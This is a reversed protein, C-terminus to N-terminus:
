IIDNEELQTKKLINPPPFAMQNASKASIKIKLYLKTKIWAKTKRIIHEKQKSYKV